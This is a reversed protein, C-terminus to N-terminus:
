RSHAAVGSRYDPFGLAALYADQFGPETTLEVYEMCRAIRDAEARKNKNLLAIRAGDGAANGVSHVNELGADPFLGLALANERDIYSGFAGALIVRDPVERGLRRALMLAGCYLAGKALQIARVDAITITIERGTTTQDSWAVVYEWGNEGSRVRASTSTKSFRGSQELIGALYMQAVADLIGSGCLGRALIVGRPEADSWREDGIVRFSAEQTTPDIRVREIAGPAARMGHGIHGGELAPGTACSTALLRERNGLILEGNTGVDILLVVQEQEHPEEALAVAVTDAGVFGAVVPLVHAYAAPHIKLGLERAKVDLSAHRSPAFPAVGLAGPPLKLLIHHMATNGVLCVDLIQEPEIGAERTAERVLGNLTEMLAAQMKELGDPNATAYAIRSIVDEGYTVQPNMTAATALVEGSRLSCLYAAVTTTGVDVALGYTEECLGARVDLIERDMWLCVTAKWQGARLQASLTRLTQYDVALDRLGFSRDLETALREWDATPDDLTPATLEVYYPRVVPNVAIARETASKRVVQRSASSEDPVFIKLPGLVTAKCSLRYEESFGRRQLLREEAESPPSLHTRRSQLGLRDVPGEEVRVVCKGCTGNSGCISEMELGLEHAAERISKGEVVLGRKGSPQFVVLHTNM